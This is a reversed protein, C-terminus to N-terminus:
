RLSVVVEDEGAEKRKAQRAITEINWDNNNALNLIDPNPTSTMEAQPQSEAALDERDEAQKVAVPQESSQAPLSSSNSPADDNQPQGQGAGPYVSVRRMHNNAIDGAQRRNRLEEALRQEEAIPDAFIQPAQPAPQPPQPMPTGATTQVQAPPWAQSPVVPTQPPTLNIEQPKTPEGRRAREMKELSELRRQASSQQIMSDFKESVRNDEDLPDEYQDLDVEPVEQPLTDINILRDENQQGFNNAPRSYIDKQTVNKVAWGRTDLTDALAKLRSQVEHQELGNTLQRNDKKPATITVLEELGAQDWIRARPKFKYRLKALVWLETPQESSWPIALFAGLMAPPLLVPLLAFAGKTIAFFSLYGFFAASAGFIFQKLTLPGLFKDEAEIDQIVKYTAM